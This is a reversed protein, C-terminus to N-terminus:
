EFPECHKAYEGYKKFYYDYKLNKLDDIATTALVNVRSDKSIIRKSNSNERNLEEFDVETDNSQIFPYRDSCDYTRVREPAIAYNMILMNKIVLARNRSLSNFRLGVKFEIESSAVNGFVFINAEPYESLKDIVKEFEPKYITSLQSSMPPFHGRFEMELGGITLVVACGKSDVATHKPTKPCEDIEDLVGDGDSDIEAQMTMINEYQPTTKPSVIEITQCGALTISAALLLLM